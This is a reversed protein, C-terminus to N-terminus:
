TRGVAPTSTVWKQTKCPNCYGSAGLDLTRTHIDACRARDKHSAPKNVVKRSTSPATDSNVCSNAGRGSPCIDKWDEYSRLEDVVMSLRCSALGQNNNSITRCPKITM